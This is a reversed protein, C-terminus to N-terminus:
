GSLCLCSRPDAGQAVEPELHTVAGASGRMVSTQALGRRVGASGSTHLANGAREPHTCM